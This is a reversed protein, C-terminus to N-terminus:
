DKEHTLLHRNLHKKQKYRKGCTTCHYEDSLMGHKLKIHAVLSKKERFKSPCENCKLNITNEEHKRRIHVNLDKKQKYSLSCQDCYYRKEDAPQLYMEKFLNIKHVNFCHEKLTKKEKFTAACRTCSHKREDSHVYRMHNKLSIKSALEKGCINCVESFKSTSHQVNYHYEKAQKSHFTKTCQECNFPALKHEFEIHKKAFYPGCFRKDCYPFLSHLYHMEKSEMEHFEKVNNASIKYWNQVCFKCADHYSIRYSKHHLIDKKCNLCDLPIGAYKM